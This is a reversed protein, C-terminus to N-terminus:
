GAIRKKHSVTRTMAAETALGAVFEALNCCAIAHVTGIHNQVSWRHELRAVCRGPGLELIRADISRFYPAKFAVLKSFLWRGPASGGLKDYLALTSNSM